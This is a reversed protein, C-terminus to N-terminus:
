GGAAARGSGGDGAVRSGPVHGSECVARDDDHGLGGAARAGDRPVDRMGVRAAARGLFEAPVGRLGRLRHLGALLYARAVYARRQPVWGATLCFIPWTAPHDFPFQVLAVLAVAAHGWSARGVTWVWWTFLLALPIGWEAARELYDNHATGIWNGQELINGQRVAFRYWGTAVGLWPHERIVELTRMWIEWRIGITLTDPRTWWGYAAVPVALWLAWRARLLVASGVAALAPGRTALAWPVTLSWVSLWWPAQGLLLLAAEATYLSNGYTSSGRIETGWPDWAPAWVQVYAYLLVVPMPAWWWRRLFDRDAEPLGRVARLIVLGALWVGGRGTSWPSWGRATQALIGLVLVWELPTWRGRWWPVGFTLWVSFTARPIFFTEWRGGLGPLFLLPLGWALCLLLTM